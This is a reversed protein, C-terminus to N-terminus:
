PTADMICRFGVTANREFGPSVRLLMQTRNLPQPGGKVYWWSSTPDYYSGGRIIIYYCSGNDYMDNTLQWVNGVLDQVGSPSAGSPYNNVPTMRGVGANCRTSDMENGWPYIRGDTGQAAYQWEAETPLRKGAWLAYAQADELSVFAVPYDGSGEPYMGNQWHMLFRSTDEPQYGTARIFEYYQHNTVPYIDMFYRHMQMESEHYDPYPIFDSPTEPDTVFRGPRIETMGEPPSVAPETPVSKSILRPTGPELWLVREDLLETGSFLQIVFKGEYRGFLGSLKERVPWSTFTRSSNQYSPNGPWVIIRDGTSATIDLTDAILEAELIEPLLAICDISGEMRSGLYSRNFADTRVPCFTGGELTDPLLEEHHWLSILHYGAPAESRFLPQDIGEPVLSLVTFITKRDGPWENVWISDRLTPILPTWGFSNFASSNERLIMTTRGLTRFDEKIWDPRGPAFTNIETGYGNFFAVAIERHIRGQSLQCVRFIAFDPRILKNLNLPPPLFLADHVRGSIIGPMDKPVAMGESYMVVGCRVSDAAHQLERSSSGRTDLVVGDADLADILHAMGTYPNEARTSQDWPNFAIFFRTGKSRASQSLERLKGLGGPLDAYLDWQNRQDVGLAPWTPWIGFVDWGGMLRIGEDLLENFRYGGAPHDYWEHNWGFQLTMLYDNRIWSLDKRRFLTDDFDELDYLYREQFMLKLGNQWAGTYFDIHFIYEVTGGPYLYTQYRRKVGNTVSQRRAIACLSHGEDVSLTGYGMEWANDPLIVGVNGLGPRCLETRALAWPGFGTIHIRDPSEGFPVVNEIVVTDDSRNMITLIMQQGPQHGDRLNLYGMGNCPLSFVLTDGTYRIGEPKIPIMEGGTRLSFVPIDPDFLKVSGDPLTIKLVPPM